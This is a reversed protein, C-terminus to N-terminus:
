RRNQNSTKQLMPRSWWIIQRPNLFFSFFSLMLQEREESKKEVGFKTVTAASGVHYDDDIIKIIIVIVSHERHTCVPDPQDKSQRM